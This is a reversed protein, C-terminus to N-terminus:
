EATFRLLIQYPANGDKRMIRGSVAFREKGNPTEMELTQVSFDKGAALATKLAPTLSEANLMGSEAVFLDVGRIDDPAIHLRGSLATNAIVVRGNGDLVAMPDPNMDFLARTLEWAGEVERKSAELSEQAKKQDDINAFTLVAGDIRNDTTRYPMIRMKYWAGGTTQLEIERPALKRLVEKLDAIVGDYSLNTAVHRLPRGADSPILNVIATAEPTFRRVRLDNDVFITAIETSNLLNRMDDHTDSLEEIKSQLEANVTQLEENLSQLEEKSSELEENTSQLEENASQLEENTSKLEENASELEEV